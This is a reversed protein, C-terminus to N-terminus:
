GTRRHRWQHGIEPFPLHPLHFRPRPLLPLLPLRRPVYLTVPVFGRVRYPSMTNVNLRRTQTRSPIWRSPLIVSMDCQPQAPAALPGNVRCAHEMIRPISCLSFAGEWFCISTKLCLLSGQPVWPVTSNMSIEFNHYWVTIPIPTPQQTTSNIVVKCKDWGSWPTLM